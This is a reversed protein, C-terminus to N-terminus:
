RAATLEPTGTSISSQRREEEKENREELMSKHVTEHYSVKWAKKIERTRQPKRLRVHAKM